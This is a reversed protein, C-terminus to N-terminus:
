DGEGANAPKKEAPPAPAYCAVRAAIGREFSILAKDDVIGTSPDVTRRDYFWTVNGKNDTLRSFPQGVAEVVQTQTKGKVRSEFESRTLTKPSRAPAATLASPATRTNGPPPYGGTNAAIGVATIAAICCVALIPLGCVALVGIVILAIGWAPFAAPRPPRPDCDDDYEDRPM